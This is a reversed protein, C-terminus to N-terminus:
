EQRETDRNKHRRVEPWTSVTVVVASFAVWVVVNVWAHPVHYILWLKVFMGAWAAKLTAAVAFHVRDRIAFAGILLVVGVATWIFGWATWPLTLDVTRKSTTFLSYGYLFDLLALFLLFAGRHGVRRILGKINM